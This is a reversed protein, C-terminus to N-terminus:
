FFNYRGSTHIEVADVDNRKLLKATAAADRVYTVVGIVIPFSFSFTIFITPYCM